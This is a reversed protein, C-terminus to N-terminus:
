GPPSFYYRGGIAVNLDLDTNPAVDLVPVIEAFVDFPANDFLYTVGVPVRVGLADDDGRPGDGSKLKLRAGIGFYVPLEGEGTDVKLLDYRHFLWDAHVQLADRGSFSWAAAGAIAQERDLWYKASLGTPEAVILGLGFSEARAPAALLSSLFVLVFLVRTKM